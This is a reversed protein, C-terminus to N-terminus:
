TNDSELNGQIEYDGVLIGNAYFSGEQRDLLLNYVVDDYEIFLFANIGRIGDITQPMDSPKLKCVGTWTNDKLRVPHYDTM